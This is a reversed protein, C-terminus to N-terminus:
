RRVQAAEGAVESERGVSTGWVDLLCKEHWRGAPADALVALDQASHCQVHM